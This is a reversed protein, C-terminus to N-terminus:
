QYFIMEYSNITIKEQKPDWFYVSVFAKSDQSLNLSIDEDFQIIGKRDILRNKWYITEGKENKVALVCSSNKSKSASNIKMSLSFSSSSIEMKSLVSTFEDSLEMPESKKREALVEKKLGSFYIEDDMMKGLFSTADNIYTFNQLKQTLLNLKDSQNIKTLQLNKDVQYISGDSIFYGDSYYDKLEFNGTMFPIERPTNLFLSQGLATTTSPFSIQYHMLFDMLTPMVDLHSVDNTFIHPEKLKSSYIMMPVHYKKLANERLIETNPHDGTLIFITNDFDPRKRYETFFDRLADDVFRLSALYKKYTKIFAQNSTNQFRQIEKEYQASNPFIYPPHSTATFFTHFYPKKPLTDLVEFYQQYLSKDDFGWFYDGAYTKQYANSFDSKDFILNARNYKMWKNITHFWADVGTFYNTQYGRNGLLNILSHHKPYMELSTFGDKGFPLSGLIAPVAAFSREGQSFCRNWYLSEKKLQNLYPMLAIDHYQDQIFDDNLGEIILVVINPTTAFTDMQQYLGDIPQYEHLLPYETSIFKKQPYQAQFFQIDEPTLQHIKQSSFAYQLSKTYFDLSKNRSYPNLKTMWLLGLLFVSSVGIIRIIKRKQLFSPYFRIKLLFSYLLTPLFGMIGMVISIKLLPLDLTSVTFVVERIPYKYVFIDLLQGEYVFYAVIMLHDITFIGLLLLSSVIALRRSWRAIQNTIWGFILSVAFFFLIDYLLGFSEFLLINKSFGVNYFLLIGEILRLCVIM